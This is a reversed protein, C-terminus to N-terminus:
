ASVVEQAITLFAAAYEHRRGKTATKAAEEREPLIGAPAERWLLVLKRALDEADHPEFFLCSGGAEQERHSPIDSALTPKGLSRAEELALGFGEFLSATVVGIAQRMLSLVEVRPLPGLLIFRERVGLISLNLLLESFYAPWRHDILGGTCVVTLDDATELALQVAKAVTLHNKHKWLYSPLLFFRQPLSYRQLVDRPDSLFVDDPIYSLPRLVRAKHALDPAFLAFDRRVADSMLLVRAAREGARRYWTDRARREAKSFLDPQHIHQFDPLWALYPLATSLIQEGYAAVDGFAVLTVGRRRLLHDGVLDRGLLRRALGRAAWLATGRAPYSPWWRVLEDVLGAIDPNAQEGPALALLRPRGPYDRLAQLLGCLYNVGAHWDGGGLQHVALTLDRRNASFAM